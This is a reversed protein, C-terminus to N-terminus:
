KKTYSLKAWMHANKMTDPGQHKQLNNDDFNTDDIQSKEEGITRRTPLLVESFWVWARQLLLTSLWQAM